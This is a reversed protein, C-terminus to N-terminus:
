SPHVDLCLTTLNIGVLCQPPEFWGFCRHLRFIRPIAGIRTNALGNESIGIFHIITIAVGFSRVTLDYCFVINGVQKGVIYHNLFKLNLDM